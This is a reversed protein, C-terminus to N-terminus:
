GAVAHSLAVLAYYAATGGALVYGVLGIGLVVLAAINRLTELARQKSSM